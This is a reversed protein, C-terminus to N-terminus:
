RLVPLAALRVTLWKKEVSSLQPKQSKRIAPTRPM